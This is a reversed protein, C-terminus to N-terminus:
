ESGRAAADISFPVHSSASWTSPMTPASRASHPASGSAPRREAHSRALVAPSRRLLLLSSLRNDFQGRCGQCLRSVPLCLCGPPAPLRSSGCAGNPANKVMRRARRDGTTRTTRRRTRLTFSPQALGGQPQSSAQQGWRRCPPAGSRRGSWTRGAASAPPRPAARGPQLPRSPRGKQRPSCSGAPRASRAPLWGGLTRARHLTRGRWTRRERRRTTSDGDRGLERLRRVCYWGCYSQGGVGSALSGYESTWDASAPSTGQLGNQMPSASSWISAVALSVSPRALASTLRPPSWVARPRGHPSLTAHGKASAGWIASGSSRLM